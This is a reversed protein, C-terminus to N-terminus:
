KGNVTIIQIEKKFKYAFLKAKIKFEPTLIGRSGKVDIVDETGDPYIVVFDAVYRIDRIAKGQSDKFKPQLEFPVQCQFDKVKGEQKWRKLNLYYRSEAKSDFTIGDITVRKSNYKPKRKARTM